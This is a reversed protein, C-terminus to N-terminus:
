EMLEVIIDPGDVVIVVALLIFLVVIAFLVFLMVVEFLVFLRVIPLVSRFTKSFPCWHVM